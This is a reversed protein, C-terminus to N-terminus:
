GLRLVGAATNASPIGCVRRSCSRSELLAEARKSYIEMKFIISTLSDSHKPRAVFARDTRM